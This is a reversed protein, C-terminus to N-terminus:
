NYEGREKAQLYAEVVSNITPPLPMGIPNKEKDAKGFEQADRKYEAWVSTFVRLFDREDRLGQERCVRVVEGWVRTRYVDKEKLPVRKSIGLDIIKM